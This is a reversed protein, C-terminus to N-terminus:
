PKAAPAEPAQPEKNTVAFIVNSVGTQSVSKMVTKLYDFKVLRDARIVVRLMPQQKLKAEVRAALQDNTLKVDDVIITGPDQTSMDNWKINVVIEGSDRDKPVDTGEKAVPLIVEKNQKLVETTAISMFFVLLVLLIDIMPAIQFEPEEEPMSRTKARLAQLHKKHTM